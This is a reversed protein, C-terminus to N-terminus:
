VNDPPDQTADVGFVNCDLNFLMKVGGENSDRTVFVVAALVVVFLVAAVFVVTLAVTLLVVATLVVILAVTLLVVLLIVLLVVVLMVPMEVAVLVVVILVVLVILVVIGNAILVMVMAFLSVAHKAGKPASSASQKVKQLRDHPEQELAEFLQM